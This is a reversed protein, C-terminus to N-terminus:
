EQVSGKETMEYNANVYEKLNKVWARIKRKQYEGISDKLLLNVQQLTRINSQNIYFNIKNREEFSLDNFPIVQTKEGFM